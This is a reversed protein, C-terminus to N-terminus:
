HHKNSINTFSFIGHSVYKLDKHSSKYVPSCNWLGMLSFDKAVKIEDYEYNEWQCYPNYFSVMNVGLRNTPIRGVQRLERGSPGESSATQARMLNVGIMFLIYIYFIYVYM